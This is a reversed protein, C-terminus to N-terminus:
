RLLVNHQAATVCGSLLLLVNHQAATVCGDSRQTLSHIFSHICVCMLKVIFCSRVMYICSMLHYSRIMMM